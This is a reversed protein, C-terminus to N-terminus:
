TITIEAESSVDEKSAAIAKMGRYFPFLILIVTDGVSALKLTLSGKVPLVGISSAQHSSIKDRNQLDVKRDFTEKSFIRVKRDRGFVGYKMM